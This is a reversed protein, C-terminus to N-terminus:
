NQNLIRDLELLKEKGLKKANEVNLNLQIQNLINTQNTDSKLIGLNKCLLELARLKDNFKLSKQYGIFRRDTGQGEFLEVVTITSIASAEAVTLEDMPKLSGDSRFFQRPDAFGIRMLETLVEEKKLDVKKSLEKLKKDIAFLVPKKNKIRSAKEILKKNTEVPEGGAELYATRNDFHEVWKEVFRAEFPTLGTRKNVSETREVIDNLKPLKRKM